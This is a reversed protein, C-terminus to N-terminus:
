RLRRLKKRALESFENRPHDDILKQYTVRANEKEGIKAFVGALRYLCVAARDSSPFQDAVESYTVISRDYNGLKEQGIGIWFAANDLFAPSSPSRRYANFAGIAEEFNGVRLLQLGRRFENASDARDLSIREEDENLLDEPVGEPPPVRMSFRDLRAELQATKGRALFELEEVKGILERTRHELQNFAVTQEAQLTRIDAIARQNELTRKDLKGSVVCSNLFLLATCSLFFSSRPKSMTTILGEVM